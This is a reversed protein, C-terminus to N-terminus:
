VILLGTEFANIKLTLRTTVEPPPVNGPPVSEVALSPDILGLVENVGRVDYFVAGTPQTPTNSGPLTFPTGGDRSDVIFDLGLTLNQGVTNSITLFYGQILERGIPRLAPTAALLSDPLQPKNLLLEFPSLLKSVM